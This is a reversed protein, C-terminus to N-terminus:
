PTRTITSEPPLSSIPLNLEQTCFKKWSSEIASKSYSHWEITRREPNELRLVKNELLDLYPQSNENVVVFKQELNLVPNSSQFWTHMIGRWLCTIELPADHMVLPELVVFFEPEDQETTRANAEGGPLNQLAAATSQACDKDIFSGFNQSPKTEDAFHLVVSWGLRGNDKNM